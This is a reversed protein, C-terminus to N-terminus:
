TICVGAGGGDEVKTCMHVSCVEVCKYYSVMVVCASCVCVCM